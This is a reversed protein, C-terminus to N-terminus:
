QSGGYHQDDRSRSVFGHHDHTQLRRRLQNYADADAEATSTPGIHVQGNGDPDLTAFDIADFLTGGGLEDHPLLRFAIEGETDETLTADFPAGVLQRGEPSDISFEFSLDFDETQATGALFATHGLLEDGESLGDEEGARTFTFNVSSYDGTFLTATGFETGDGEFWDILFRGRAEGIVAGGEYHGPHAYAPTVFLELLRPGLSTSHLEGATTFELNAIALRAAHLRIEFGLDTVVTQVRSGDVLLRRAVRPAERASECSALTGAGAALLALGLAARPFPQVLGPYFLDPLTTM